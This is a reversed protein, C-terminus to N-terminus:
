FSPGASSAKLTERGGAALHCQALLIREPGKRWKQLGITFTLYEERNNDSRMWLALLCAFAAYGSEASNLESPSLSLLFRAINSAYGFRLCSAFAAPLFSNIANSFVDFFVLM